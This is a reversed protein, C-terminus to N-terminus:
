PLGWGPAVAINKLLVITTLFFSNRTLPYMGIDPIDEQKDFFPFLHLITRLLLFLQTCPGVKGLAWSEANGSNESKERQALEEAPVQLSM